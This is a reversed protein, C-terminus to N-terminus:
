IPIGVLEQGSVGTIKVTKVQGALGTEPVRVMLYNGSHGASGEGEGSEFLVELEKGLNEQLYAERMRDAVAQAEAARRSKVAATLQLPMAARPM